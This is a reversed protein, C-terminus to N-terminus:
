QSKCENIVYNLDSCDTIHINGAKKKEIDDVADDEARVCVCM